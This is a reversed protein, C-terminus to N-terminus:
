SLSKLYKNLENIQKPRNFYTASANICNNRKIFYDETNQRIKKINEKLMSYDGADSTWGLNYNEIISRGEGGGSFLIPLGAAMSEYIKSPVAGYINKVLPILTVSYQILVGPIQDRSVKGHYFIGKDPSKLLYKELLEREAGDGYIHFEADLDKFNVNKCIDLIGQAVGLLGTYVIKTNNNFDPQKNIKKFRNPDVGNRFLYTRKSGNKNLHDTIEQSQGMCLYSKKYILREIRELIRYLFGDSIAGLEKASLPWLDSVNLVMKSGALRSIIYGSIGLTLPPSEIIIFNFKRKLIYPLSFLVNFSFSFMSLIRPIIKKSNSAKMWYRRVPIDDITEKTKLKGKYENFIKGTPYNPMATIVEVERGCKKLGVALESLRNQAAGMEPKYYQTLIAIRM